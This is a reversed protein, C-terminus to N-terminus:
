PRRNFNSEYNLHKIATKEDQRAANKFHEAIAVLKRGVLRHFTYYVSVLLLALGTIMVISAKIAQMVAAAQYKKVPMAIADLAVVEGVPRHFGAKDGYRAILSAPADKPAGHCQLCNEKMRRASFLGIQEQDNIRIKGSWRKADPNNNFYEIIKLEEPGAQNLPNRPNDSSFKITYDPHEKRVKDFVSRAVFSTSM